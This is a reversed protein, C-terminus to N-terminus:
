SAEGAKMLSEGFVAESAVLEQAQFIVDLLWYLLGRTRKKLSIPSQGVM